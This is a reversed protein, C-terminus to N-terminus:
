AKAPAVRQLFLHAYRRPSTTVRVLLRSLILGNLDVTFLQMGEIEEEEIEEEKQCDNYSAYEEENANLLVGRIGSSGVSEDLAGRIHENYFGQNELGHM